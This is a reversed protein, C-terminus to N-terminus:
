RRGIAEAVYSRQSTQSHPVVKNTLYGGPSIALLAVVSQDLFRSDVRDGRKRPQLAVIAVGYAVVLV